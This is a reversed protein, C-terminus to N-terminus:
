HKRTLEPCVNTPHPEFNYIFTAAIQNEKCFLHAYSCPNNCDLNEPVIQLGASDLINVKIISGIWANENISVVNNSTYLYYIIAGASDRLERTYHAVWTNKLSTKKSNECPAYQRYAGTVGTCGISTNDCYSTLCVGTIGNCSVTQYTSGCNCGTIIQQCLHNNVHVKVTNGVDLNSNGTMQFMLFPEPTSMLSVPVILADLKAEFGGRGSYAHSSHPTKKYKWSTTEEGSITFEFPNPEEQECRTKPQYRTLSNIYVTTSM